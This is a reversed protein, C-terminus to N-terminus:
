DNEPIIEMENMFQIATGNAFFLPLESHHKWTKPDFAKLVSTSDSVWVLTQEGVKQAAAGWGQVIKNFRPFTKNIEHTLKNMGPEIKWVVIRKERWTFQLLKDGVRTLGEAFYQKENMEKFTEEFSCDEFDFKYISVRSEGYWGSSVVLHQNDPM